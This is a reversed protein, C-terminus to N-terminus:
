LFEKLREVTEQEALASKGFGPIAGANVAEQQAEPYNSVLMVPISCTKEDAKLRKVLTLGPTGDADFIRNVLVLSVSSQGLVEVAEKISDAALVEVDFHSTIARAITFQDPYCQGVSLVRKKAM